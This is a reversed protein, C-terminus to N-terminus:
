ISGLAAASTADNGQAMDGTEETTEAARATDDEAPRTAMVRDEGAETAETTTTEPQQEESQAPASARDAAVVGAVVGAIALAVLKKPVRVGLLHDLSFRGPGALGIAVGAASYFLPAEAGGETLWIPKGWHVKRTATAMSGQLAIPGIPGGLGLATL